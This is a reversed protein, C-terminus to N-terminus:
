TFVQKRLSISFLSCVNKIYELMFFLKYLPSVCICKYMSIILNVFCVCVYSLSSSLVFLLTQLTNVREIEIRRSTGQAKEKYNYM